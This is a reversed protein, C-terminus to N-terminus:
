KEKKLINFNFEWYLFFVRLEKPNQDKNWIQYGISLVYPTKGIFNLKIKM